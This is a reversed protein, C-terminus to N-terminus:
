FSGRVGLTFRSGTDEYELFRNEFRSFDRRDEDLLNVGEAFVQFMENIEYAASFDLQGYAERERPEGQAGGDSALVLFEDRYNYSLRAQLPGKEYFGSVNFSHPSLGNYDLDAFASGAARDISSDVFTYNAQVGFGNEFATQAALELGVISGTEGNRDRTDQFAIQRTVDAASPNSANGAPFVVPREIAITSSEIFNGFDKYFGSVGVFSLDDVYWEFAADFNTSEFAELLPNGGTSTPANARGGFQNAVGLATLTPRTVTKSAALRVIKDEAVDFKINASPLFNTYTNSVTVPTAPGFNPILQTDGDSERFEVVPQDVGTSSTETRAVRFGFNAAFPLNNFAGEWASNFFVATV